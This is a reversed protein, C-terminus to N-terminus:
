EGKVAKALAAVQAAADTIAAELAAANEASRATQWSEALPQLRLVIPTARDRVERLQTRRAESLSPALQAAQELVVSYHETIVYATEYLGEAEKYAARTGVCGVLVFMLYLLLLKKM